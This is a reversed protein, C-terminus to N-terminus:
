SAHRDQLHVTHARTNKHTHIYLCVCIYMSCNFNTVDHLPSFLKHTIFLIKKYDLLMINHNVALFWNTGCFIQRYPCPTAYVSTTIVPNSQMTGKHTHTVHTHTHTHIYTQVETHITVVHKPWYSAVWFDVALVEVRLDLCVSGILISFILVIVFHQYGRFCLLTGYSFLRFRWHQRLSFDWLRIRWCCLM